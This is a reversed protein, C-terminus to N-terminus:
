TSAQRVTLRLGTAELVLDTCSRLSWEELGLDVPAEGPV